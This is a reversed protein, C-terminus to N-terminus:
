WSRPLLSREACVAEVEDPSTPVAVTLNEYGSDTIVVDDEIRVGIGRLEDPIPHEIKESAELEQRELKRAVEEGLLVRREMWDDVDYELLHFTVVERDPDLYLGPEVTFVMGPELRRPEGDVKYTGVDHVDMGLWHSTGHMFFERYHHMALTEEVGLPVVGFHVLAESLVSKAAEHVRRLKEGPRCRELAARQAALVAEYVDRQPRSFRGGVPFTRTIDASHYAFEAGADILLVDGDALERDNDTYHLICANPGGAV